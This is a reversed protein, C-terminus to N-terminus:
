LRARGKETKSSQIMREHICTIISILKFTGHHEPGPHVRGIHINTPAEAGETNKMNEYTAPTICISHLMLTFLDVADHKDKKIIRSSNM